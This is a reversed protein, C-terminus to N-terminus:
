ARREARTGHPDTSGLDPDPDDGVAPTQCGMVVLKALAEHASGGM